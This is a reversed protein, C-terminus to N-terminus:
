VITYDLLIDNHLITSYDEKTMGLYKLLMIRCEIIMDNYNSDKLGRSMIYNGDYIIVCSYDIHNNDRIYTNYVINFELTNM